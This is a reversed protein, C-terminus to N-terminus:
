RKAAMARPRLVDVDPPTVDISRMAQSWRDFARRAEGHRKSRVLGDVLARHSAADYPDAALLRALLGAQDSAAGASARLAALSRLSRLWGARAHERLGIAWDEYPEDEFADGCYAADVESLM